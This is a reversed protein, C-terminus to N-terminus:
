RDDAGGRCILTRLYFLTHVTLTSRRSRGGTGATKANVSNGVIAKCIMNKVGNKVARKVKGGRDCVLHVVIDTGTGATSSSSTSPTAAGASCAVVSDESTCSLAACNGMPAYRKEQVFLSCALWREDRLCGSTTNILKKFVEVLREIKAPLSGDNSIAMHMRWLRHKQHSPPRGPSGKVVPPLADMTSWSVNRYSDAREFGFKKIASPEARESGFKTRLAHIAPNM